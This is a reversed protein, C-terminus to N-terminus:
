PFVNFQVSKDVIFTSSLTTKGFVAIVIDVNRNAFGQMM